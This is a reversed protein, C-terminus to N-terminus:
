LCTGTHSRFVSGAVCACIKGQVIITKTGSKAACYALCSTQSNMPHSYFGPTLFPDLILDLTLNSYAKFLPKNSGLKCIGDLVKLCNEPKFSMETSSKSSPFALTTCSQNMTPSINFQQKQRFHYFPPTMRYMLTLRKLDLRKDTTRLRKQNTVCKSFSFNAFFIFYGFQLWIVAKKFLFLEFNLNPINQRCILLFGRCVFTDRCWSQTGNQRLKKSTRMELIITRLYLCIFNGRRWHGLHSIRLIGILNLLVVM